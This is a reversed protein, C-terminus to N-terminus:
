FIEWFRVVARNYQRKAVRAAQKLGQKECTRRLDDLRKCVAFMIKKDNM